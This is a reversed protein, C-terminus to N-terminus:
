WGHKIEHKHYAGGDPYLNTNTDGAVQRRMWSILLSSFHTKLKINGKRGLSCHAQAKDQSIAVWIVPATTAQKLTRWSPTSFASYLTSRANPSAPFNSFADAQKGRGVGCPKLGLSLARTIWLLICTGSTAPASLIVHHLALHKLHGDHRSLLYRLSLNRDGTNLQLSITPIHNTM